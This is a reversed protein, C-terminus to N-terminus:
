QESKAYRLIVCKLKEGNYTSRHTNLLLKRLNTNRLCYVNSLLDILSLNFINVETRVSLM